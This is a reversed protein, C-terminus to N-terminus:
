KNGKRNEKITRILVDAVVSFATECIDYEESKVHVCINSSQKMSGGSTGVIAILPNFHQNLDAVNRSSGSCSFVILTDKKHRWLIKLPGEHCKSFAADNSYATIVSGDNLAQSRIGCTKLLDQAFHQAIALSGGNGVVWVTGGSSDTIHIRDVAKKISDCNKKGSIASKVSNIHFEIRDQIM